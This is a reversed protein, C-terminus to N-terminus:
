RWRTGDDGGDLDRVVGAIILAAARLLGLVLGTLLSAVLKALM